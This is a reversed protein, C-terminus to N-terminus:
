SEFQWQEPQMRRGAGTRRRCRHKRLPCKSRALSQWTQSGTGPGNAPEKHHQWQKRREGERKRSRFLIGRYLSDHHEVSMSLARSLLKQPVAQFMSACEERQRQPDCRRNLSLYLSPPPLLLWFCYSYSPSHPSLSTLLQVTHIHVCLSTSHCHRHGGRTRPLVKGLVLGGKDISYCTARLPVCRLSKRPLM